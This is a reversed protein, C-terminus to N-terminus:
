RRGRVEIGYDAWLPEGAKIPRLARVVVTGEIPGFEVNNQTKTSDHGFFSRHNILDMIPVLVVKNLFIFDRSDVSRKAWHMDEVSLLQCLGPLCGQSQIDM